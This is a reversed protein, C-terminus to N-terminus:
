MGAHSSIPVAVHHTARANSGPTPHSVIAGAAISEHTTPKTSTGTGPPTPTRSAANTASTPPVTGAPTRAVIATTARSANMSTSASPASIPPATTRRQSAADGTDRPACRAAGVASRRAGRDPGPEAAAARGGDDVADPQAGDGGRPACRGAPQVRVPELAPHPRAHQGPRALVQGAGHQRRALDAGAPGLARPRPPRGAGLERLAAMPNPVHELVEIALVLDFTDDPFPLSVIDAFSAALRRSSWHEALSTTPCTSAPSSRTPSASRCGTRSRARGSASRSSRRRLSRRSRRRRAPGPVRAM